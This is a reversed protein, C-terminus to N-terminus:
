PSQPLRSLQGPTYGFFQRSARVFHAQDTFALETAVDVATAGQKLLRLAQHMRQLQYLKYPSLGIIRRMQRSYTRPSQGYVSQPLEFGLYGTVHLDEILQEAHDFDPFQFRKKGFQFRAKDDAPFLVTANTLESTLFNKLFVGPKLRITMSTYGASLVQLSPKTKPGAIIVETSKNSKVLTISICPDAIVARSTSAQTSSTWVSEVFSSDSQREQWLLTAQDM